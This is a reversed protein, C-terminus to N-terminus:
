KRSQNEEIPIVRLSQNRIIKGVTREQESSPVKVISTYLRNNNSAKPQSM